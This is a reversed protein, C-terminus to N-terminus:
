YVGTIGIGHPYPTKLEAAELAPMIAGMLGRQVEWQAGPKTTAKVRITLHDTSVTSVGDLTPSGIIKGKLQDGAAAVAADLITQSAASIDTSLSLPIEVRAIAYERSFNGVRTIGGNRVFWLTGDSDRITTTRLSVHEVTGSADGVDIWDGVGYQDEVLMFIGTLFDKVLSQAGFGLAVGAIGASAILPRIDIGITGLAALIAWTWVVISVTSKGVSALTKLRADRRTETPNKKIARNTARGILRRLITSVVIAIVITLAIQPLHEVTHDILSNHIIDHVTMTHSQVNTPRPARVVSNTM